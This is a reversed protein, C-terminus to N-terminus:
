LPKERKEWYDKGYDYCLEEERQIDRNAYLIVKMIGEHFILFSDCNGKEKHNMFRTFNGQRKADITYPTKKYEGIFYEFCYSNKQDKRKKRKRLIGTYEGIFDGKKLNKLAFVGYGIIENVSKIAVFSSRKERLEKHYYVGLWKREQSIGKKKKAKQCMKEVKLRYSFKEYELCDAYRIQFYGEYDQTVEGEKTFIWPLDIKQM